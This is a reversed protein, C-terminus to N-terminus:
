SAHTGEMAPPPESPLDIEELETAMQQEEAFAAYIGGARVLQEHTGQEVIRGEDLVVVRDCRSAAAIRHTVLVVTRRAAQREIAELIARETKADVASLPDDLILIKPEWVLARALAIRQKQGGSLQVGREGVVTDFGDPLSLTEELVQAERAADRIRAISEASDPDDLAFGINRAVTTSFLFADQQAYGIASRVARLPLDCVDVGDMRVALNPTPLLRALLMALTTKGSGTRGVIALSEGPAVKFTVGDLVKRERYAFSLNDVSLSGGVHKPARRPGDVVEPVADFVDRLRVFGARGRQMVSLAFGVAIMPWTMRAFASWFAFFAGPSLGGHEPGALLLSAGYWFFILIGGAAVAGIIPAFSGRLRALALNADLYERNIAAFRAREHEELAFSRVVRVGALNAQLRDSMRGLAAQNERMRTFMGRSLRRSIITVLPLNVLCALTLKVSMGLMVQLASAFAFCVNVVNLIGFGLLMRVQQLDSTSRSMIEGAPMKRYFAAGLQQLKKLLEFRLEYEADRGANFLYWRSGIRAFFALVALGLMIAAPKWAAGPDAGFVTDIASKSTIDIRNMALQFGALMLTGVIYAPAHRRFQGKLTTPFGSPKSPEPRTEASDM